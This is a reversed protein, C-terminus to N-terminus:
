LTGHHTLSEEADIEARAIQELNLLERIQLIRGSVSSGAILEEILAAERSKLVPIMYKKYPESTVLELVGRWSIAYAKDRGKM